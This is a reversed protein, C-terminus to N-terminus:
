AEAPQGLLVREYDKVIKSAQFLDLKANVFTPRAEVFRKLETCLAEASVASALQVGGTASAIEHIGGPAPTAIVHTGCALAELIVNPFGEYRSCLVLADARSMFAYPNKQFGAFRIQQQVGKSWAYAELNKHLPGDGLVLVRLQKLGALAIAEILLDFGKEAVLRGVALLHIANRDKGYRGEAPYSAMQLVREAEIPNNIVALKDIPIAFNANLDDRMYSSQCIIIDLRKCFKRYAWM